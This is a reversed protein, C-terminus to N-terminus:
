TDTNTDTDFLLWSESESKKEFSKWNLERKLREIKQKINKFTTTTEATAAKSKEKRQKNQENM